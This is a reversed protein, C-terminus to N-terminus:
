KKLWLYYGSVQRSEKKSYFIGDLFRATSISFDFRGLPMRCLLTDIPLLVPNIGRMSFSIAFQGVFVVTKLVDKM